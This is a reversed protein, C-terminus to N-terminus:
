CTSASLFCSGNQLSMKDCIWKGSHFVSYNSVFQLQSRNLSVVLCCQNVCWGLTYIKYPQRGHIRIRRILLLDCENLKNLCHITAAYAVIYCLHCRKVVASPKLVNLGLWIISKECVVKEFYNEEISIYSNRNINWQPKNRPNCRCWAM